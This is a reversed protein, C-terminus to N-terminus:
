IREVVCGDLFKAAAEYTEAKLKQDKQTTKKVAIRGATSCNNAQSNLWKVIENKMIEPTSAKIVFM